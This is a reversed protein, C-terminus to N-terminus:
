TGLIQITAQATLAEGSNVTIISTLASHNWLNNSSDKLGIESWTGQIADTSLWTVIYQAYYTLYPQITQCQKLTGASPSWLDTDTSSPTGSGTGLQMQSPHTNSTGTLMNVIQQRAYNTVINESKVIRKIPLLGHKLAYFFSEQSDLFGQKRAEKENFVRFTFKGEWQINDM